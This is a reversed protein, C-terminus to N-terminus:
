LFTDVRERCLVAAQPTKSQRWSQSNQLVAFLIGSGDEVLFTKGIVPSMCESHKPGRELEAGLQTDQLFL